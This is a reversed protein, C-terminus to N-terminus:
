TDILRFVILAVMTLLCEEESCSCALVRTMQDVVGENQQLVENLSRLLHPRDSGGVRMCGFFANPSLQLLMGKATTLCCDQASNDVRRRKSSEVTSSFAIVASYPSQTESDASRPSVPATSVPSNFFGGWVNSGFDMDPFCTQTSLDLPPSMMATDFLSGSDHIMSDALSMDAVTSTMDLDILNTLTDNAPRKQHATKSSQRGTRKSADYVCEM